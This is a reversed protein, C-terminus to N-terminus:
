LATQHPITYLITALFMSSSLSGSTLRIIWHKLVVEYTFPEHERGNGKHSEHAWDSDEVLLELLWGVFNNAKWEMM